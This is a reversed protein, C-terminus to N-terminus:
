LVEAASAHADIRLRTAHVDATALISSIPVTGLTSARAARALACRSEPLTFAVVRM